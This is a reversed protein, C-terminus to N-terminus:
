RKLIHVETKKKKKKVLLIYRDGGSWGRATVSKIVTKEEGDHGLYFRATRTAQQTQSTGSVIILNVWRTRMAPTCLETGKLQRTNSQPTATGHNIRKSKNTNSQEQLPLCCM